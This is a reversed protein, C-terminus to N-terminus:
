GGVGLTALLHAAAGGGGGTDTVSFDDLRFSSSGFGFLGHKTATSNFSDSIPGTVLTGNLYVSLSSGSCSLKIVDGNAPTHAFDFSTSFSGAVYKELRLINSAGNLDLLWFNSADSCRAVLGGHNSATSVTVQLDVDSASAELTAAAPSDATPNYATDSSIGWTGAQAVWASGGDSPSGLSTASDARNFNDARNM